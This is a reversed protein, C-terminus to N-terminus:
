GERPHTFILTADPTVSINYQKNSNNGLMFWLLVAFIKLHM